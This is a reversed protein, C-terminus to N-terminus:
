AFLLDIDNQVGVSPFLWDSEDLRSALTRLEAPLEKPVEYHERLAQGIHDVVSCSTIGDYFSHGSSARPM